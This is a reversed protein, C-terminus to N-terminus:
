GIRQKLLQLRGAHGFRGGRVLEGVSVLLLQQAMQLRAVACCTGLAFLNREDFFRGAFDLM